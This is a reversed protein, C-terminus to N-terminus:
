LCLTGKRQALLYRTFWCLFPPSKCMVAAKLHGCHLPTGSVALFFTWVCSDDPSSQCLFKWTEIM